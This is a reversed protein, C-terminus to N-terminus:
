YSFFNEVLIDNIICVYFSSMFGIIMLMIVSFVVIMVIMGVNKKLRFCFLIIGLMNM